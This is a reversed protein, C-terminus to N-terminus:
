EMADDLTQTCHTQTESLLEDVSEGATVAYLMRGIEAGCASYATVNPETIWEKELLQSAISYQPHAELFVEMEEFASRRTPFCAMHQSWRAQQEPETLWKIFL